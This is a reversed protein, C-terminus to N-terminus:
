TRRRRVKTPTKVAWDDDEEDEADTTSQEGVGGISGVGRSPTLLLIDPSSSGPLDWIEEQDDVNSLTSSTRQFLTTRSQLPAQSEPFQIQSMSVTRVPKMPTAEVLITSTENISPERKLPKAETERRRTESVLFSPASTAATTSSTAKNKSKFMRSMSVERSLVGRKKTDVGAQKARERQKEEAEEALSVSM